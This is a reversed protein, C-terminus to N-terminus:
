PMAKQVAPGSTLSGAVNRFGNVIPRASDRTVRVHFHFGVAEAPLVRQFTGYGYRHLTHAPVVVQALAGADRLGQLQQDRAGFGAGTPILLDGQGAGFHGNLFQRHSPAGFACAIHEVQAERNAAQCAPAGHGPYLEHHYLRSSLSQGARLWVLFSDVVLEAQRWDEPLADLVARTLSGGHAHAFAGHASFLPQEDRFAPDPAAMVGLTTVSSTWGPATAQGHRPVPSTPPEIPSPM